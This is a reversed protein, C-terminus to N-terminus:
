IKIASHMGFCPGEVYGPSKIFAAIAPIAEFNTMYDVLNAHDSILSERYAKLMYFTSYVLFDLYCIEDGLLFKKGGLMKSLVSMKSPVTNEFMAKTQEQDTYIFMAFNQIIDGLMGEMMEARALDGINSPILSPKYKRIVYMLVARSESLKISDDIWYPLNPSDLGIRTKQHKWTSEGGDGEKGQTYVFYDYDVGMYELAFRIPYGRGRCDWYALQPKSM